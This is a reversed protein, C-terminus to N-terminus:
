YLSTELKNPTQLRKSLTPIDLLRMLLSARPSITPRKAGFPKERKGLRERPCSRAHTTRRRSRHPPRKKRPQPHRRRGRREEGAGHGTSRLCRRAERRPAHPAAQRRWTNYKKANRPLKNHEGINQRNYKHV